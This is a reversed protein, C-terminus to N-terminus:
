NEQGDKKFNQAVIVSLLTIVAFEYGFAGYFIWFGVLTGLCKWFINFTFLM